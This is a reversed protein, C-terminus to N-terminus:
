RNVPNGCRLAELMEPTDIDLHIGENATDFYVLRDAFEVFLRRAGADGALATLRPFYDRGWVVPNGTIGKRRPVLISDPGAALAMERLLHPPVLPMDGLCIFAAVWERPAAEVGARISHSIGEESRNSVAFIADQHRLVAHLSFNDPPVVVVPPPLHATAVREVVHLIVPKGWLDAILKNMGMRRARGAALIIAGVAPEENM